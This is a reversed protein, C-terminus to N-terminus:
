SLVFFCLIGSLLVFIGIWELKKLKEKFYFATIMLAIIMEVQGVARVYSANTLTFGTFWGISGLCSTAGVFWCLKSVKHLHVHTGPEKYALWLFLLVAQWGLLVVLTWAANLFNFGTGLEFSADKIFLGALALGFGAGLGYLASPETLMRWSLGTKAITMLAIGLTILIMAMWGLLSITEVFFLTGVIATLIVETKSYGTSVAFSRLKFSYILCFTAAIQSVGGLLCYLYFQFSFNAQVSDAEWGTFYYVVALYVLAFPLGYLARVYTAAMPTIAAGSEKGATTMQKQAATRVSQMLAAFLTILIWLPVLQPILDTM